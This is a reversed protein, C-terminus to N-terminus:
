FGLKLLKKYELIRQCKEYEETSVFYEELKELCPLLKDKNLTLHISIFVDKSYFEMVKVEEENDFTEDLKYFILKHIFDKEEKLFNELEGLNEFVRKM